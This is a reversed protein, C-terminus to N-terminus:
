LAKIKQITRKYDQVFPSNEEVGAALAQKVQGELNQVYFDKM